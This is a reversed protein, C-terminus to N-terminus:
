GRRRRLWWGVAAPGPLALGVAMGMEEWQPEGLVRLGYLKPILMGWAVWAAIAWLAACFLGTTGQWSRLALLELVLLSASLFLTADLVAGARLPTPYGGPVAGPIGMRVYAYWLLAAICSAPPLLCLVRFRGPLLRLGAATVLGLVMGVVLAVTVFWYPRLNTAFAGQARYPAALWCASVLVALTALTIMLAGSRGLELRGERVRAIDGVLVWGGVVSLPVAAALMAYLAGTPPVAGDIGPRLIMVRFQHLLFGVLRLCFL